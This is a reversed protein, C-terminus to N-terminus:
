RPFYPRFKGMRRKLDQEVCPTCYDLHVCIPGGCRGCANLVPEWCERPRVLIDACALSCAAGSLKSLLSPTPMPSTM